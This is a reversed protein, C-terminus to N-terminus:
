YFRKLIKDLLKVYKKSSVAQTKRLYWHLFRYRIPLHPNIGAAKLYPNDWICLKAFKETGEREFVQLMEDVFHKGYDSVQVLGSYDKDDNMCCLRVPQDLRVIEDPYFKSYDRYMAIVNAKDKNKDMWTVQYFDMKQRIKEHNLKSLHVVWFDDVDIYRCRNEELCPIRACHVAHTERKSYEAVVDVSTDYHAAWEYHMQTYEATNFNDFLNLWNFCFIENGQSHTIREWSATKEFGESFFEDADLGFIVKDGPIKEAEELLRTRCLYEYWEQTPNDILIVKEYKAAIERTGDDSHQDALIIYDAWSSTCTLFADLVWAENRVPTIVILKKKEM